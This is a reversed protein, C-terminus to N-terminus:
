GSSTRRRTNSTLTTAGSASMRVHRGIRWFDRPRTTFIVLSAERPPYGPHPPYPLLLAASSRRLLVSAFSSRSAPTPTTATSGPSRRVCICWSANGPCSMLSRGRGSTVSGNQAHSSPWFGNRTVPWRNSAWPVTQSTGAHSSLLEHELLVTLQERRCGHLRLMAGPVRHTEEHRRWGSVLVRRERVQRSEEGGPVEQHCVFTGRQRRAELGVPGGPRVREVQARPVRVTQPEGLRPPIRGMGARHRDLRPHHAGHLLSDARINGRM